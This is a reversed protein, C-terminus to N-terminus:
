KLREKDYTLVKVAFTGQHGGLFPTHRGIKAISVGGPTIGVNGSAM